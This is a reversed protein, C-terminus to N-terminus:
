SYRNWCGQKRCHRKLADRRSCLTGCGGFWTQGEFEQRPTGDRVVYGLRTVDEVVIGRCPWNKDKSHVTEKHRTLDSPRNYWEKCVDCQVEGPNTGTSQVRGKGKPARAKRPKPQVRWRGSRYEGDAASDSNHESDDDGAAYRSRKAGRSSSGADTTRSSAPSPVDDPSGSRSLARRRKPALLKPEPLYEDDTANPSSDGDREESLYAHYSVHPGRPSVRSPPAPATPFSTSTTPAPADDINMDSDGDSDVTTVPIESVYSKPFIYTQPSQLHVKLELQESSTDLASVPFPLHEASDALDGARVPVALCRWNCLTSGKFGPQLDIPCVTLLRKQNRLTKISYKSPPLL